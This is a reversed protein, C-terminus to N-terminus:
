KSGVGVRDQPRKNISAGNIVIKEQGTNIEWKNHNKPIKKLGNRTEIELMSKTEYVIKGDLGIIQSNTSELIMANLGILEHSAINQPTIM